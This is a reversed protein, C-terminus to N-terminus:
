GRSEPQKGSQSDLRGTGAFGSNQLWSDSASLLGPLPLIHSCPLMCGYYSLPKQFSWASFALRAARSPNHHLKVPSALFVCKSAMAAPNGRSVTLSLAAVGTHRGADGWFLPVQLFVQSKSGKKNQTENTQKNKNELVALARCLLGTKNTACLLLCVFVCLLLLLPLSPPVFSPSLPPPLFLLFPLFLCFLFLFCFVVLCYSTAKSNKCWARQRPKALAAMSNLTKRDKKTPSFM